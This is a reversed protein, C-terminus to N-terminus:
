YVNSRGLDQTLHDITKKVEPRVEQKTSGSKVNKKPTSPTRELIETRESTETQHQIINKYQKIIDHGDKAFSLRLAADEKFTGDANFLLENISEINLNAKAQAVYGDDIGDINNKLYEISKDVSSNFKEARKTAQEVQGSRYSDLEQKDTDFKSRATDIALNIAKKTGVDGDEAKYEDWEEKSFKNPLYNDVLSKADMDASTKSFDLNPKSVIPTKWDEGKLFADISQYLESPLKDFVEKQFAHEKAIQEYQSQQEKFKLSSDILTTLDDHGTKEKIIKNLGEADKLDATLDVKDAAKKNAITKKGGFMPSDIILEEKEEAGSEETSAEEANADKIEGEEIEETGAEEVKSNLVDVTVEEVNEPDKPKEEKAPVVVEEAPKELDALGQELENAGSLGELASLASLAAESMQPAEQGGPENNEEIM